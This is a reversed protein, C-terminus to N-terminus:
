CSDAHRTEQDTDADPDHNIDTCFETVPDTAPTWTGDPALEGAASRSNEM